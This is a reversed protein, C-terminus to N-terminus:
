ARPTRAADFPARTLRPNSWIDKMATAAVIRTEREAVRAERAALEEEREKLAAKEDRMSLRDDRLHAQEAELLARARQLNEWTNHLPLDDAAPSPITPLQLIPAAPTVSPTSTPEVVSVNRGADIEAQWARLRAEYELLNAERERLAEMDEQLRQREEALTAAWKEASSRVLKLTPGPSPFKIVPNMANAARDVSRKMM